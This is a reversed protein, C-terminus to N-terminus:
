ILKDIDFNIDSGFEWTTLDNRKWIKKADLADLETIQKILEEKETDNLLESDKVLEEKGLILHYNIWEDLGYSKLPVMGIAHFQNDTAKRLITMLPFKFTYADMLRSFTIHHLDHETFHSTILNNYTSDNKAAIEKSNGYLLVFNYHWAKDKTLDGNDKFIKDILDKCYQPIVDKNYSKWQRLQSLAHKFEDSVDYDKHHFLKKAPSEIEIFNFYLEMSNTTIILFDPQRDRSYSKIRPQSIISM